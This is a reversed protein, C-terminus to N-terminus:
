CGGAQWNGTPCQCSDTASDYSAGGAGPCQKVTSYYSSEACVAQLQWLLDILVADGTNYNGSADTLQLGTLNTQFSTAITSTVSNLVTSNNDCVAKTVLRASPDFILTELQNKTGLQVMDDYGNQTFPRKVFSTDGDSNELEDASSGITAKQTGNAFWGGFGNSGHSVIVYAAQNLTYLTTNAADKVTVIVNGIATQNNYVAETCGVGLGGCLNQSVQYTFQREWGDMIMLPNLGLARVPVAGEASACYILTTSMTLAEEGFALEESDLTRDAPCPIRGENMRFVEIARQIEKLRQQTQLIKEANSTAPPLVWSYLAVAITAAITLILALETLSFGASGCSLCVRRKDYRIKLAMFVQLKLSFFSAKFVGEQQPPRCSTHRM